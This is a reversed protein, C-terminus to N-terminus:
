HVKKEPIPDDPSIRGVVPVGREEVIARAQAPNVLVANTIAKQTAALLSDRFSNVMESSNLLAEDKDGSSESMAITSLILALQLMHQNALAVLEEGTGGVVTAPSRTESM